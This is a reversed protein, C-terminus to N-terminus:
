VKRCSTNTCVNVSPPLAMVCFASAAPGAVAFGLALSFLAVLTTASFSPLSGWQRPQRSRRRSPLTSPGRRANDSDHPLHHYTELLQELEVTRGNKAMM